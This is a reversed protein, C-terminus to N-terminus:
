MPETMVRASLQNGGEDTIKRLVRRPVEGEVHDSHCHHITVEGLILQQEEQTFPVHMGVALNWTYWGM